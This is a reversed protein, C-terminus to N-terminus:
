QLKCVVISKELIGEQFYLGKFLNASFYYSEKKSIPFPLGKFTRINNGQLVHMLVELEKVTLSNLNHSLFHPNEYKVFLYKFLKNLTHKNVGNKLLLLGIRLSRIVMGPYLGYILSINFLQQADDSNYIELFPLLEFLTEYFNKSIEFEHQTQKEFLLSNKAVDALASLTSSYILLSELHNENFFFLWQNLRPFIKEDELHYMRYITNNRDFLLDQTIEIQSEIIM